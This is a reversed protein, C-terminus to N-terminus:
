ISGCCKKYKRGSGCRCPDNRRISNSQFPGATPNAAQLWDAQGVIKKALSQSKLWDNMTVVLNPIIDAATKELEDQEDETLQSNGAQLDILAAMVWMAATVDEDEAQWYLDWAAERMRMAQSFGSIWLEWFAEEEESVDNDYQELLIEYPETRNALNEAVRNYHAMVADIAAKAQEVREFKRKGDMRWVVPLWESHAVVEPCVLLGAVFGDLESVFMADPRLEYNNLLEELADIELDTHM